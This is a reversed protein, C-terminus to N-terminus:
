IMMDEEDTPTLMIVVEFLQKCTMGCSDVLVLAVYHGDKETEARHVHAKMQMNYVRHSVPSNIPNDPDDIFDSSIWAGDGEDNIHLHDAGVSEAHVSDFLPRYGAGPTYVWMIFRVHEIPSNDRLDLLASALSPHADEAIVEGSYEDIIQIIFPSSKPVYSLADRQPMEVEQGRWLNIALEVGEALFTDDGDCQWGDPAINQLATSTARFANRVLEANKENYTKYNKM